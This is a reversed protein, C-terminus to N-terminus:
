SKGGLSARKLPVGSCKKANNMMTERWKAECAVRCVTREDDGAINEETMMVRLM